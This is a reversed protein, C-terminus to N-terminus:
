EKMCEALLAPACEAETLIDRGGLLLYSRSQKVLRELLRLHTQAVATDLSAWPCMSILRLMADSQSITQVRSKALSVISTFFLARPVCTPSFSEPFLSGPELYRKHPDNIVPAIVGREIEPLFCLADEAIAFFRRYGLAEVGARTQYLLLSDDTLYHWRSTVVRLTLTSKGSNSDGLILAAAGTEPEVVGAAHLMLLGCRRLMGQVAYSLVNSFAIPHRALRTRGVWVDILRTELPGIHIVSDDIELYCNEGEMSCLGRTVALKRLGEPLSPMTADSRIRLTYDAQEARAPSALTFHFNELFRATSRASWEDETQFCLLRDAITYCRTVVM